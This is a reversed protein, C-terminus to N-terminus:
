HPKESTKKLRRRANLGRRNVRAPRGRGWGFGDTSGGTETKYTASYSMPQSLPRRARVDSQCLVTLYFYILIM